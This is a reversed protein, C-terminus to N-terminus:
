AVLEQVVYTSGEDVPKWEVQVPSWLQFPSADPSNIIMRWLRPKKHLFTVRVSLRSPQAPLTFTFYPAIQGDAYLTVTLLTTSTYDFYGQKFIKSKDTGFKLWYTDFSTSSDALVAAYISEQYFIPASTVSIQHIWSMRYAEQGFAIETQIDPSIKRQVKSRQATTIPDPTPDLALTEPPSSPVEQFLLTTTLPQSQTNVDNELMNWQKPFHPKGLDQFPPQLTLAIPNQTLEGGQWGGDDYDQTTVQDQAIVYGLLQGAVVYPLSILFTNTDQEWLMATAGLDDIRYRRYNLDYIIRYRQGSNSLSVYSTYVCNNYFAMVVSALETPDVLPLPTLSNQRYIFEVPLSMYPAEAGVFNRLGDPAQFWISSNVETWGAVAPGGHQCGTPQAYPQAGGVIQFWTVVTKVFLTGRWNVVGTIAKGAQGVPIYAAPSFSEPYGKKSFYLYHSNNQDGALWTQGYAIAALTCHVRPVSYVNIPEGANHQLRLIGTFYGQGGTIVRVAELNQAFGVQVIQEPVFDFAPGGNTGAYILQPSFLAYYTNGPSTSALSLASALPVPLSSTVPPDNDLQLIPSQEISDDSIVDKYVFMGAKTGGTTLNPIQDIQYWNQNAIGGRRYIRVHTVQPDTSYYGTVQAAQRLYIPSVLSALYGYQPDFYQIPSGNSETLTNANIYTYRYDYGVGGFSSPGYGWQLYIGNCSVTSSGVTSTTIVLQWGTINTWDLGSQGATGVAVFDGRRLLAAVWAGQGTSLNAPQLQATTSNPPAGTILGLTDAFIQQETTTYADELQQVGQQYYNPAVDKYYYSTTYGSGNVDFQLRINSISAPDGTALTCVIIDDDTVENNISLDLSITNGMTATSNTAVTGTWCGVPFETVTAAPVIQYFGWASLQSPYPTSYLNQLVCSGPGTAGQGGMIFGGTASIPTVSFFPVTLQTTAAIPITSLYFGDCLNNSCGYVSISQQGVLGHPIAATVTLTTYVGLTLGSSVISVIPIQITTNASLNSLMGNTVNNFLGVPNVSVSIASLTAKVSTIGTGTAVTAAVIRILLTDLNALGYVSVTAPTPGTTQTTTAGVSYFTTWTTGSDTSYELSVASNGSGLFTFQGLATASITVPQGSTSVSSLAACTFTGIQNPVGPPATSATAVGGTETYTAQIFENFDTIHQATFPTLTTISAFAPPVSFGSNTYSNTSAFNDILTLLPSYPQTNATFTPPDIGVLQPQIFSGCDKLSVAADFLFLYAQSSAFCSTTVWSAFNGSLASYIKTYPGQTDGARRYLGGDTSVAYRWSNQQYLLRALTIIPAAFLYNQPNGATTSNPNRNIIITGYRSSMANEERELCNMMNLYSHEPAQDTIPRAVLGTSKYIFDIPTYAVDPTSM